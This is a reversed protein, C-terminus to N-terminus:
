SDDMDTDELGSEKGCLKGHELGIELGDHFGHIYAVEGYNGSYEGFIEDLELVLHLGEQSDGLTKKMNEMLNHYRKRSDMYEKDEWLRADLPKGMREAVMSKIQNRM